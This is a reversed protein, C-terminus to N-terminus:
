IARRKFALDGTKSGVLKLSPRSTRLRKEKQQGKEWLELYGSEAKGFQSWMGNTKHGFFGSFNKKNEYICTHTKECLPSLLM